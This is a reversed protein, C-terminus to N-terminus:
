REKEASHRATQSGVIMPACRCHGDLLPQPFNPPRSAVVSTTRRNAHTLRQRKDCCNTRVEQSFPIPSDALAGRLAAWPFGGTGARVFHFKRQWGASDTRWNRPRQRFSISPLTLTSTNVALLSCMAPRGGNHPALSWSKSNRWGCNDATITLCQSLL